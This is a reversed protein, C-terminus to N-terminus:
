GERTYSEWWKIIKFYVKMSPAFILAFLLLRSLGNQTSINKLKELSYWSYNDPVDSPMINNIIYFSLFFIVMPVGFLLLETGLHFVSRITRNRGKKGERIEKIMQWFGLITILGLVSWSIWQPVGLEELSAFLDTM